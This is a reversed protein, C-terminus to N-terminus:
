HWPVSRTNADTRRQLDLLTRPNQQFIQVTDARNRCHLIPILDAEFVAPKTTFWWMASPFQPPQQHRANIDNSRRPPIRADPTNRHDQLSATARSSVHAPSTHGVHSRGHGTSSGQAIVHSDLELTVAQLVPLTRVLAALVASCCTEPASWAMTARQPASAVCRRTAACRRMNWSHPLASYNSSRLTQAPLTRGFLCVGLCVCACALTRWPANGRHVRPHKPRPTPCCSPVKRGHLRFWLVRAAEGRRHACTAGLQSRVM